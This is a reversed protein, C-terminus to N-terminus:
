VPELVAQVCAAEKSSSTCCSCHQIFESDLARLQPAEVPLSVTSSAQVTRGQYEAPSSLCHLVGCQRRGVGLGLLKVQWELPM